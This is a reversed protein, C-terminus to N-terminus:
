NEPTEMNAKPIPKHFSGRFLQNRRFITSNVGFVVGLNNKEHIEGWILDAFFV